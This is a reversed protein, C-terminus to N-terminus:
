YRRTNTGKRGHFLELQMGRPPSLVGFTTVVNGARLFDRLWAAFAQERANTEAEMHPWRQWHTGGVSERVFLNKHNRAPNVDLALLRQGRFTLAFSYKPPQRIKHATLRVVGVLVRSNPASVTLKAVAYEPHGVTRWGPRVRGLKEAALFQSVLDNFQHVSM